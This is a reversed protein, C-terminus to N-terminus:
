APACPGHWSEPAEIAFLPRRLPHAHGAAASALLAATMLGSKLLAAEYSLRLHRIECGGAALMLLM